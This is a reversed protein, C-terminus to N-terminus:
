LFFWKFSFEDLFHMDYPLCTVCLWEDSWFMFCPILFEQDLAQISIPPFLYHYWFDWCGQNEVYYGGSLLLGTSLNCFFCYLYRLLVNLVLIFWWSWILTEYSDELYPRLKEFESCRKLNSHWSVRSWSCWPYEIDKTYLCM